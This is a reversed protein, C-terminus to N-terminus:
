CCNIVVELKRPYSAMFTQMSKPDLLNSPLLFEQPIELLNLFHGELSLVKEAASVISFLSWGGFSSHSKNAYDGRSKSAIACPHYEGSIEGGRGRYQTAKLPHVTSGNPDCVLDLEM